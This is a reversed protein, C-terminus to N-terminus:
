RKPNNDDKRQELEKRWKAAEDPRGTAEYLQVLWELARTLRWRYVPPVQSEREKMEKYGRLLLPEAEAYKQQGLLCAGLGAEASSRAWFDWTGYLVLAKRLSKEAEIWKKLGLRAYGLRAHIIGVAQPGLDKRGEIQKLVEVCLVEAEAYKGQETYM